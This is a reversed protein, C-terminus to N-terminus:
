NRDSVQYSMSVGDGDYIHPGVQYPTYELRAPAGWWDIYPTVFWYGPCILEPKHKTINWKPARLDPRQFDDANLGPSSTSLRVTVFSFLDSGERLNKHKPKVHHAQAISTLAWLIAFCAKFGSFLM